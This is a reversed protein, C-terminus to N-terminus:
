TLSESQENNQEQYEVKPKLILAFLVCLLVIFPSLILFAFIGNIVDEVDFSFANNAQRDYDFINIRGSEHEMILRSVKEDILQNKQDQDFATNLFLFSILTNIIVAFLISPFGISFLSGFTTNGKNKLRRFLMPIFIIIGVSFITWLENIESYLNYRKISFLLIGGFLGFFLSNFIIKKIM